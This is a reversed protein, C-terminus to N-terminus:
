PRRRRGAVALGIFTVLAAGIAVVLAPRTRLERGLGAVARVSRARAEEAADEAAHGLGVAGTSLTDGVEAGFRRAARKLRRTGDDLIDHANEMAKAAITRSM